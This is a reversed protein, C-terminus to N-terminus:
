TYKKIYILKSMCNLRSRYSQAVPTGSDHSLLIHDHAWRSVSGLIVASILGLPLKGSRGVSSALRPSTQLSGCYGSLLIHDHTEHSESGLIVTSILGLLLKGWRGVSSALRPSTQLSGSYDSLLIHDHTERSESGLIVRSALVLLLKATLCGTLPANHVLIRQMSGM